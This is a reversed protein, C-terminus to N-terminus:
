FVVSSVSLASVVSSQYASALIANLIKVDTHVLGDMSFQAAVDDRGCHLDQIRQSRAQVFLEVLIREENLQHVSSIPDVLLLSKWHVIFSTKDASQDWIENDLLTDDDVGFHHFVECGFVGEWISPYRAIVPISNARRKFKLRLLSCNM